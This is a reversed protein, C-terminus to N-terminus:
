FKKKGPAPAPNAEEKTYDYPQMVLATLGPIRDSVPGLFSDALKAIAKFNVTFQNKRDPAVSVETIVAWPPRNSELDLSQVYTGWNKTSTAPITILAVDAEAVKEPTLESDASVMALRITEKCAKGRAPKGDRIATGWQAKPCADCDTSQKEPASEHPTMRLGTTSLAYCDPNVMVDPNYPKTYLANMFSAAVIIVNVKNGPIYNGQYSMQGSKLSIRGVSATYLKAVERSEKRLRDEWNVIETSM